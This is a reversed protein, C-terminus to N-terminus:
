LKITFKRGCDICIAEYKKGRKGAFGAITGGIGYLAGGVAAKGLSFAKRKNDIVQINHSKCKPCKPAHRNYKKKETKQVVIQQVPKPDNSSNNKTNDPLNHVFKEAEKYKADEKVRKEAKERFIPHTGQFLWVVLFVIIGIHWWHLFLINIIGVVLGSLLGTAIGGAPDGKWFKPEKEEEM